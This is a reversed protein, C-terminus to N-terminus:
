RGGLHVVAPQGTNRGAIGWYVLGGVLGPLGFFVLGGLVTGITTGPLSLFALYLIYALIAAAVGAIAYFVPARIRTWEAVAIFALAPLLTFAGILIGAYLTSPVVITLPPMTGRSVAAVTWLIAALTLAAGLCAGLYGGFVVLMRIPRRGYLTRKLLFVLLMVVILCAAPAAATLGVSDTWYNGRADRNGVLQMVLSFARGGILAAAITGAVFAIIRILKM